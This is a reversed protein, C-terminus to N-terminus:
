DNTNEAARTAGAISRATIETQVRKFNKRWGRIEGGGLAQVALRKALSVGGARQNDWYLKPVRQFNMEYCTRYLDLHDQTM